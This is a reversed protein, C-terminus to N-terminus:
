AVVAEEDQETFDEHRLRAFGISRGHSDPIALCTRVVVRDIIEEACDDLRASLVRCRHLRSNVLANVNCYWFLVSRLNHVATHVGSSNPDFRGIKTSAWENQKGSSPALLEPALTEGAL